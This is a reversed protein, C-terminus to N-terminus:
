RHCTRSATLSCWSPRCTTPRCRQRRRTTSCTRRRSWPRASATLGRPDLAAGALIAAAQARGSGAVPPMPGVDTVDLLRDVIDDYSVIGLGDGELMTDVFVEVAEKLKDVKTSGDGADMSMSGSRDLALTVAAKPRAISNASLSVVWQESTGVQAVTVSGAAVDGPNTSTYAIWLRGVAPADGHASPVVVSTGLLTTAFGGLPRRHEGAHRARM